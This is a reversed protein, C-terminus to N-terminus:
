TCPEWATGDTQKAHRWSHLLHWGCFICQRRPWRALHMWGCSRNSGSRHGTVRCLAHAFGSIHYAVFTRVVACAKLAQRLVQLLYHAEERLQQERRRQWLFLQVQGLGLHALDTKLVPNALVMCLPLALIVGRCSCLSAFLGETNFSRMLFRTCKPTVCLSALM